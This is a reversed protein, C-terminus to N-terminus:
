SKGPQGAPGFDDPTRPRGKWGLLGSLAGVSVLGVTSTVVDAVFCSTFILAATLLGLGPIWLGRAHLSRSTPEPDILALRIRAILLLLYTATACFTLLVVLQEVEAMLLIAFALCATVVVALWPARRANLSALVAPVTGGRALHFLLRSAAYIGASFSAVLAAIAASGVMGLAISKTPSTPLATLAALLPDPQAAVAAAGLARDSALIIGVALTAAIGLSAFMAIPLSREPTAAEEAAFAVGEITVFFTVVFPLASWIAPASVPQALTGASSGGSFSLMVGVFILLGGVAIAAVLLTTRLAERVGWIHISTIGCFLLATVGMEDLGTLASAYGVAFRGLAAVASLYEVLLAAGALMAWRAGLVRAVVEQPGGASPYKTVLEALASCLCGFMVVVLALAILTGPVGAYGIAFGWAVYGGVTIYALGLGTLLLPGATGRRLSTPAAAPESM